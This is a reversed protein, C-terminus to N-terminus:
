ARLTASQPKGPGHEGLPLRSTQRFALRWADCSVRARIRGCEPCAFGDRWRAKCIAEVCQEESGYRAMFERLSLDKQFQIDYSPM